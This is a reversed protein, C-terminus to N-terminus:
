NKCIFLCSLTFPTRDKTYSFPWINVFTLPTVYAKELIDFQKAIRKETEEEEWMSVHTNDYFNWKKNLWHGTTIPMQIMVVAGDKAVTKINKLSREFSATHELVDFATIVDFQRNFKMDVVSMQSFSANRVKKMAEDIAHKSLDIGHCRFHISAYKVFFGYACGIDLLTGGKKYKLINKLQFNWIRPRDFMKYGLKYSSSRGSFYDEGFPM